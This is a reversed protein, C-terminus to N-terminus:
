IAKASRNFILKIVVLLIQPEMFFHNIGYSLCFIHSSGSADQAALFSTSLCPHPTDFPCLFWHSPGGLPWLQFLSLLVAIIANSKYSLIFYVDMSIYIVSYM